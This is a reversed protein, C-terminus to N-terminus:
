STRQGVFTRTYGDNFSSRGFTIVIAVTTAPSKGIMHDVRVPAFTIFGNPSAKASHDTRWQM